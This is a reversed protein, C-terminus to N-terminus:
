HPTEPELERAHIIYAGWLSPSRLSPNASARADLQAARLASSPPAGGAVYHHFMRMFSGSARDDVNWLTGVVNKAGASLFPIALSIVGQGSVRAGTATECASLVVLRCGRLDWTTIEEFNLFDPSGIEAESALTLESRWPLLRNARAHAAFHLIGKNSVAAKISAPTAFAGNLITREQYISGVAKAEDEAAELVSTGNDSRGNYGVALIGESMRGASVAGLIAISPIFAIEFREIIPGNTRQDPLTAIPLDGIAGDAAILLRRVRAPLNALAPTLLRDSIRWALTSGLAVGANAEIVHRYADVDAALEESSYPLSSSTIGDSGIVWLLIRDRLNTYYLIACERPISPLALNTPAQGRDRESMLTRRAIEATVLAARPDSSFELGILDHFLDWTASFNTIRYEPAQLLTQRESIFTLAEHLLRTANKEDHALVSSRSAELYLSPLEAPEIKKFKGVLTEFRAAAAEPDELRLLEAELRNKLADLYAASSPSRVRGLNTAASALDSQALDIQGRKLALQARRIHSEIVTVPVGREEAANVALTELTEATRPLGEDLAYLSLNYLILYRRRLSADPPLGQAIKPLGQAAQLLFRWGRQLDGTTRLTDAANSEVTSANELEGLHQYAAIANQYETTANEVRGGQMDIIGLLRNSRAEMALYHLTQARERVDALERRAQDLKRLQYLVLGEELHAQHQFPSNGRVFEARAIAFQARAMENDGSDAMSRGRAYALHGRALANRRTSKSGCTATAVDKLFADGFVEKRKQGFLMLNAEIASSSRASDATKAWATLGDLDIFERIAQPQQQVIRMVHDPDLTEQLDPLELSATTARTAKLQQLRAQTGNLGGPHRELAIERRLADEELSTLGLRRYGVSLNFQPQPWDPRLESAALARELGRVLNQGVSDSVPSTFCLYAASADNLLAADNPSLRLAEELRAVAAACNGQYLDIAAWLRVALIDKSTKFELSTRVAELADGPWTELRRPDFGMPPQLIGSEVPVVLRGAPEPM